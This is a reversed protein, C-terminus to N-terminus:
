PELWDTLPVFRGEKLECIMGARQAHHNSPTFTVPPLIGGSNWDRITEMADLFSERTLDKGARELGEVVLKGFVYGYLSYRNLERGPFYEAM